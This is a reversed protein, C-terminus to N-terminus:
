EVIDITVAGARPYAITQALGDYAGTALEAPTVRRTALVRLPAAPLNRGDWRGERDTMAMSSWTAFAAAQDTLRIGDIWITLLASSSTRLTLPGPDAPKLRLTDEGSGAPQVLASARSHRVILVGPADIAVDLNGDDDAAGRWRIIGAGDAICAEAGAAPAGNALIVRRRMTDRKRLRFTLEAKTGDDITLEQPESPVYGTASAEIHARGPRLRPLVLRGSEGATYRMSTVLEGASERMTTAHVGVAAGTIPLGTKADVVEATIRTDPLHVDYVRSGDVDAWDLFPEAADGHMTAHAVYMAPQWLTVQYQGLDTTDAAAVTKRDLEFKVEGPVGDSGLYLTGRVVIPELVFPLERDAGGTLDVDRVFTWADARLTVRLREAPVADFVHRDRITATAIVDGDDNEISIELKEFARQPASVSVALKPKPQLTGRFTSVSKPRLAIAIPAITLSPSEATVTATRGRVGYWVAFAANVGHLFADPARAHGDGEVLRVRLEERPGPPRTLVVLVDSDRAPPSPRAIITAGPALSLPRSLAVADGTASDFVGALIKGAPMSAPATIDPIRRAFTRTWSTYFQTELALLRVSESKRVQVEGALRVFGSPVVPVIMSLGQPVDREGAYSLILPQPSIYDKGALWVVYRGIRPQLWKGCPHVVEDDPNAPSAFHAECDDAPLLEYHEDSAYRAPWVLTARRGNIVGTAPDPLRVEAALQTVALFAILAIRLM